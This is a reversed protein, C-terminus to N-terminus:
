FKHVWSERAEEKTVDVREKSRKVLDDFEKKKKHNRKFETMMDNENESDVGSSEEDGESLEDIEAIRRMGELQGSARISTDREKELQKQEETMM